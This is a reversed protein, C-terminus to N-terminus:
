VVDGFVQEYHEVTPFPEYFHHLQRKWDQYQASQRFGDTHDQLTRWRVLLLYQNPTELCRLLQHSIYGPMSAIIAQAESFAQEFYASEGARVNLIAVELIM